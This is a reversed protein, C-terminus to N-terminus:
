NLNLVVNNKFILQLGQKTLLEKPLLAKYVSDEVEIHRVTYIDEYGQIVTPNFTELFDKTDQDIEKGFDIELLIWQEAFHERNFLLLSEEKFTEAEELTLERLIRTGILYDEAQGKIRFSFSSTDLDVGQYIKDPTTQANVSCGILVLLTLLLALLKKM